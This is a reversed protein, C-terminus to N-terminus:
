NRLHQFEGPNAEIYAVTRALLQQSWLEPPWYLTGLEEDWKMVFHEDITNGEAKDLVKQRTAEFDRFMARVRRFVSLGETTRRHQDLDNILPQVLEVYTDSFEVLELFNLAVAVDGILEECNVLFQAIGGNEMEGYFHEVVWLLWQGKTIYDQELADFPTRITKLEFISALHEDVPYETFRDFYDALKGDLDEEDSLIPLKNADILATRKKTEM